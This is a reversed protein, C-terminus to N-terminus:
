KDTSRFLTIWDDAAVGRCEPLTVYSNLRFAGGTWTWSAEEGCDGVGRGKFFSSLTTPSDDDLGGADSLAALNEVLEGTKQDIVEFRLRKANVADNGTGLYYMTGAQYAARWCPLAYLTFSSSLRTVEIGDPGFDKDKGIEPCDGAKTERVHRAWLAKAAENGPKKGPPPKVGQLRPLAPPAPVASAAKPGKRILATEGGVRGQVDDMFLLAAPFGDLSVSPTDANMDAKADFRLAHGNKAAEILQALREKDTLGTKPPADKDASPIEGFAGKDIEQAAGGDVSYFVTDTGLETDQQEFRLTAKGDPGGQRDLVLYAGEAGQPPLGIARCALTNDCGVIWDKLQRLGTGAIATGSTALGVAALASILM